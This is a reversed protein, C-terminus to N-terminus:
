LTPSTPELFIANKDKMLIMPTEQQSQEIFDIFDMKHQLYGEFRNVNYRLKSFMIEQCVAGLENIVGKKTFHSDDKKCLVPQCRIGNRIVSKSTGVYTLLELVVM